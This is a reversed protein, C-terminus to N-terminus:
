LLVGDALLQTRLTNTDLQRPEQGAACVLAAATGAAQGTVMAPPILRVAQQAYDDVSICRGSVLLGDVHEPVLCGYPVHYQNAPCFGSGAKGISDVPVVGSVMEAKTLMHLGRVRRSDRVGLQSAFALLMVQEFGPVFQRYYDLSLMLQRRLTVEAYTLDEVDLASLRGAFQSVVDGQHGGDHLATELGEGRAAVGLINVWFIGSGSYPTSGPWLAYGGRARLEAHLARLEEPHSHQFERFRGLNVGGVKLNLGICQTQTDCAAGALAAIDGDGTADVCVRCLIAQRGSKSEAIVGRVRGDETIASVAWSHLRLEVGAEVCLSDAVFKLVESDAHIALPADEAIGGLARCRELAEWPLGGIARQGTKDALSDMYLVLGGTALGGLCGYRELLLTKAGGARLPPQRWSGPRDAASWWFM